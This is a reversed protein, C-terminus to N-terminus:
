PSRCWSRVSQPSSWRHGPLAAEAAAARSEPLEVPRSGSTRARRPHGRHARGARALLRFRAVELLNAVPPRRSATATTSSARSRTSTRRPARGRRARKYMELRLREGAIYDHPLHADVPLEIKVEALEQRRRAAPVGRGGRRGAPRLPRLRRRRHARVARRRAPQRRRPDGPGEDRDGHRRRPRHAAAITALREHATETLPKEPPYLFYAYAASAAAASGAACSTCSPSASCHRRARHDAHQRQLHRPRVRRDHHLGARRVAEGLLRRMSRSSSTSAWRATRSRSGRRPCWSARAPRRGARDVRGPQPHLLGPGRAAARPPDGRGIQQRTTPASSPSCRTGSRRRPPSRRCRASAPSRWRWPARSRRRAVDDARRRQHAAAEAAGQARRRLAAGRRRHGPRPGQVPDRRSLLRHTGIVIDVTGDACGRRHGRKAEKDTQFRRCRRRGDVPFSACVARRVDDYHQQVLLTTPVLVAVQKGDQVAKFAARVAIETKGYGVDGCILRDMPVPKEM